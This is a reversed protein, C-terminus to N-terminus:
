YSIRDMAPSTAPLCFPLLLTLLPSLLHQLHTLSCVWLLPILLPHSQCTMSITDPLPHPCQSLDISGGTACSTRTDLAMHTDERPHNMEQFSITAYATGAGVGCRPHGRCRPHPRHLQRVRVEAPSGTHSALTLAPCLPPCLLLCLLDKFHIQNHCSRQENKGEQM